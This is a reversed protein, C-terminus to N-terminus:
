RNRQSSAQTFTAFTFDPFFHEGPPREWAGVFVGQTCRNITGILHRRIITQFGMPRRGSLAIIVGKSRFSTANDLDEIKLLFFFFLSTVFVGHAGRAMQCESFVTSGTRTVVQCFCGGSFQPCVIETGEIRPNLPVSHM